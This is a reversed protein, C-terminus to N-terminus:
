TWVESVLLLEVQLDVVPVEVIGENQERKGCFWLEELRGYRGGDRPVGGICGGVIRVAAAAAVVIGAIGSRIHSRGM